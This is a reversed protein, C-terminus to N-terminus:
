LRFTVPEFGTGAGVGKRLDAGKEAHLLTDLDGELDLSCRGRAERPSVPVAKVRHQVATRAARLHVADAEIAPPSPLAEVLPPLARERRSSWGPGKMLDM